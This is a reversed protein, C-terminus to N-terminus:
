EAGPASGLAEDLTNEEELSLFKKLDHILVIGDELEAIGEVYELGPLIAQAAIVDEESREVIGSVFDAVLAVPRRITHGIIFHNDLDIEQEPLRFRKRVNVVPVMKGQINIVGLIIEPAKPLPTVEIAPIVREVTSLPLAYRHDDLGFVVLQFM